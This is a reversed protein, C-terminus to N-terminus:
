KVSALVTLPKLEHHRCCITAYRAPRPLNPVCSLPRQARQQEQQKERKTEIKNSQQEQKHLRKKSHKNQDSDKKYAAIASGSNWM